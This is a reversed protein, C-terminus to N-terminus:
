VPRTADVRMCRRSWRTWGRDDMCLGHVMVLLRGDADPFRAQLASRKMPLAEGDARLQMDIALPNRQAALYDGLVGNLIALLTDTRASATALGPLPPLNRLALDLGGGVIRNVGRISSYVLGSIGATRDGRSRGLVPAVRSINRHQTEVIGTVGEVAEVILRSLGRLQETGSM